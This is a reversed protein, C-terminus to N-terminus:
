KKKYQFEKDFSGNLYDDTEPLVFDYKYMYDIEVTLNEAEFDMVHGAFTKDDSVFHLHYAAVNIQGIFEPCWFGVMTGSFDEREFVPRTPILVDLGTNFPKEQKHLGGCRMFKFDGKIKFAYFINKSPLQTNIIKRLSDYNPAHDIEFSKESDFFTANAYIIKSDDDGVTVKGDETARYPVGDLMILEGDLMSWSGLGIDGKTKLEKATLKGEFIRNVFAYWISYHYFVDQDVAATEKEEPTEKPQCSIFVSIILLSLIVKYSIVSRNTIWPM